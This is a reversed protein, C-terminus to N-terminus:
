LNSVRGAQPAPPVTQYVKKLLAVLTAKEAPSLTGAAANDLETTAKEAQMMLEVGADTLQLGLARGDLPHPHRVILGRKDMASIKGVLNPPLLNLTSCLQSSTIGPNDRITCLISFDVVTLGLEALRPAIVGIVALAARRANYGLLTQLYSTDVEVVAPPRTVPGPRRDPHSADARKM